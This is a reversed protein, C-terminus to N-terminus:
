GGIRFLLGCDLGTAAEAYVPATPPGVCSAPVGYAHVHGSSPRGDDMKRDILAAKAATLPQMGSTSGLYALNNNLLAIHQGSPASSTTAGGPPHATGDLYGMVFFGGIRAVPHTIGPTAVTLTLAEPTIGSILDAQLLHVWYLQSERNPASGGNAMYNGVNGFNSSWNQWGIIGDGGGQTASYTGPECNATCGPLKTSAGVLDGPLSAHTDRFISTAAEYSRVQAITATVRANLMLEQGKLIGGILLGVITMVIALEVLTFGRSRQNIIAVRPEMFLETTLYNHM